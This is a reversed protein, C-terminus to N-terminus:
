LSVGVLVSLDVPGLVEDVAARNASMLVGCTSSIAAPFVLCETPAASAEGALDVDFGFPIALEQRKEHGGSLSV